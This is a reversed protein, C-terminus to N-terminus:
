DGAAPHRGLRALVHELWRPLTRAGTPRYFATLINRLRNLDLRRIMRGNHTVSITGTEESVVIAVADSVESIGLAARHRLGMQREPSRSLTGGASLPMVCAAAAIRDGRIVAAGDHLPTNVFFIQLLLEPTLLADLRVGTELYEELRTEREIVILAGHRQDSLRQSASCIASITREVQPTEAALGTLSGARGLRELARRIEPAFIVPIAVLLAPLTTTLLWSFAPLPLLTTLVAIVIILLIMGRLLVAAQTGRVLNLLFFFVAAVLLLDLASLWDLRQFIFGIEGILNSV